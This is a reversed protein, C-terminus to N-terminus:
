KKNKFLASEVWSKFIFHSGFKPGLLREKEVIESRIIPGLLEKRLCSMSFLHVVMVVTKNLFRMCVLVLRTCFLNFASGCYIFTKSAFSRTTCFLHVM